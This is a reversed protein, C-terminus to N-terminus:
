GLRESYEKGAQVSTSKLWPQLKNKVDKRLESIKYPVLAKESLAQMLYNFIEPTMKQETLDAMQSRAVYFIRWAILLITNLSQVEPRQMLKELEALEEETPDNSPEEELKKDNLLPGGEMAVQAATKVEEEDSM